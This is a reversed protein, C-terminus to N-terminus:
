LEKIKEMLVAGERMEDDLIEFIAMCPKVEEIYCYNNDFLRFLRRELGKIELSMRGYDVRGLGETPNNMDRLQKYSTLSKSKIDESAGDLYFLLDSIWDLTSTLSKFMKNLGKAINDRGENMKAYSVKTRFFHIDTEVKRLDNYLKAIVIDKRYLDDTLSTQEGMIREKIRRRGGPYGYSEKRKYSKL